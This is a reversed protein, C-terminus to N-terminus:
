EMDLIRYGAPIDFLAADVATSADFSVPEMLLRSGKVNVDIRLPICNWVYYRGKTGTSPDDVAWVHCARGLVTDTGAATLHQRVVAASDLHCFDIMMTNDRMARSLSRRRAVGEDPLLTLLSDNRTISVYRARGSRQASLRVEVVTENRELNGFDDFTITTTGTSGLAPMDTKAVITGSRVNYRGPETREPKLTPKPREVPQDVKQVECGAVVISLCALGTLTRYFMSPM